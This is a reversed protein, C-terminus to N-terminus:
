SGGVSIAAGNATVSSSKVAAISRMDRPKFLLSADEARRFAVADSM